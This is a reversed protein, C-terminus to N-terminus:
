SVVLTKSPSFARRKAGRIADHYLFERRVPLVYEENSVNSSIELLIEDLGKIDDIRNSILFYM